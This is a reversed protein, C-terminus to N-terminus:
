SAPETRRERRSKIFGDLDERSFRRQGNPTRYSPLLGDDAWRRVTGHSVGLLRAVDRTTLEFVGGSM